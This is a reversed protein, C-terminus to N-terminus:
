VEKTLTVLTAGDSWGNEVVSTLHTYGVHVITEIGTFFEIRSTAEPESFKVALDAVCDTLLINASMRNQAAGCWDVPYETGDNLRIMSM